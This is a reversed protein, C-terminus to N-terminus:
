SSLKTRGWIKSGCKVPKYHAEGERNSLQKNYFETLAWPLLSLYRARPSITTIGAVWEKEIAQDIRRVGLIDLGEIKEREGSNWFVQM